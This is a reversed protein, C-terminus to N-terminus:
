VRGSPPRRRRERLELVKNIPYFVVAFLLAVAFPAALALGAFTLGRTWGYRRSILWAVGFLIALVFAGGGLSSGKM